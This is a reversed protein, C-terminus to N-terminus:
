VYGYVGRVSVEGSIVQSVTGDEREVLLEGNQDIGKCLGRYEGKPDLVTVERGLNALKSEYEKKLASLDSTQLFKDYYEEMRKMICAIINSRKWSKGSEIYLSTATKSIEEPFQATNVNIGIGVVVYQIMELETSMETLIGCIKKGDIIVDNPWKIQSKLGCAEEIGGSVAMAAVLTIMSACSPELDPRLIFSMWIGSGPPSVWSRGRRGKGAMQCEAVVLTGEGAGAEALHKAQINTSDTKEHFRVCGGMRYGEMCSRLEAETLVDASEVLHYGKNRVAEIQYGEEQLQKIVKWVATRSVHLRDCLEQGSLYGDCEKLLRIIEAKM